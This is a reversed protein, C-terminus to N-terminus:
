GESFPSSAESIFSKAQDIYLNVKKYLFLKILVYTENKSLIKFCILFLGQKM